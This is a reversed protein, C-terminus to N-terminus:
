TRYPRAVHEARAAHSWRRAAAAAPAIHVRGALLIWGGVKSHSHYSAKTFYVTSILMASFGIWLAAQVRSVANTPVATTFFRPQRVGKCDRERGRV